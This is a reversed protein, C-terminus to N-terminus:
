AGLPKKAVWRGYLTLVGGAATGFALGLAVFQDASIVDAGVGLAGLLPLAISAIAGWTVRSQYWPESNTAHAIVPEVATLVDNAVKSVDSTTTKTYPDRVAEQVGKVVAATIANRVTDAM